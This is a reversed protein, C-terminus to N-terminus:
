IICFNLIPKLWHGGTDTFIGTEGKDGKYPEYSSDFGPLSECALGDGNSDLRHSDSEPGGGESEFFSQAEKWNAFDSCDMDTATISLGSSLILAFVTFFSIISKM